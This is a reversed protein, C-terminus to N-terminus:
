GAEAALFAQEPQQEWEELLFDCASFLRSNENPIAGSTIAEWQELTILVATGQKGKIFYGDAERSSLCNVLQDLRYHAELGTVTKM